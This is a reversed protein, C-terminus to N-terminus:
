TALYICCTSSSDFLQPNRKTRNKKYKGIFLAPPLTRLLRSFDGAGLEKIVARIESLISTKVIVKM